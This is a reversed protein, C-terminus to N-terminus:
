GCQRRRVTASRRHFRPRNRRSTPKSWFRIPRDHRSSSNDECAPWNTVQFAASTPSIAPARPASRSREHKRRPQLYTGVKCGTGPIRHRARGRRRQDPHDTGDTGGLSFSDSQSTWRHHRRRRSLGDTRGCHGYAAHLTCGPSLCFRAPRGPSVTAGAGGRCAACTACCGARGGSVHSRDSLRDCGQARERDELGRFPMKNQPILKQPDLLYADLTAADWVMNAAKMAPSYNYNPVEGSKKGVIGALSPGLANKGAELSHCAQCKRYVQRGAAADGDVATAATSAAPAPAAPPAATSAAPQAPPPANAAVVTPAAASPPQAAAHGAMAHATPASAAPPAPTVAAAAPPPRPAQAAPLNQAAAPASSKSAVPVPSASPQSGTSIAATAPEPPKSSVSAAYIIGALIVGLGTLLISWERLRAFIKAGM